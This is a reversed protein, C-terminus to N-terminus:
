YWRKRENDDDFDNKRKLRPQQQQQQQETNYKQPPRSKNETNEFTGRSFGLRSDFDFLRSDM